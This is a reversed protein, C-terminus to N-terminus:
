NVGTLIEMSTKNPSRYYNIEDVDVVDDKISLTDGPNLYVNPEPFNYIIKGDLEKKSIVDYLTIFKHTFTKQKHGTLTISKKDIGKNIRIDELNAEIILGRQSFIGDNQKYALEIQLTGNSRDVIDSAYSMDPILVRLFTPKGSRISAQFSEIPIEIDPSGTLTFLYCLTGSQSQILDLKFDTDVGTLSFSGNEILIRNFRADSGTLVYVGVNAAIIKSVDSGTLTYHFTDVYLRPVEPFSLSYSEGEAIFGTHIKVALTADVGEISYAGSAPRHVAHFSAADGGLLYVGSVAVLKTPISFDVVSGVLSYVGPEPHIDATFGLTADTGTLSFSGSGAFVSETRYELAGFTLINDQHANGTYEGYISLPEADNDRLIIQGICGKYFLTKTPGNCAGILLSYTSSPEAGEPVWSGIDYSEVYVGDVFFYCDSLYNSFVTHMWAPTTAPFLNNEAHDENEVTSNIGDFKSIRWTALGHAADLNERMIRFGAHDVHNSDGLLCEQQHAVDPKDWAQISFYEDSFGTTFDTSSLEIADNTGDFHLCKGLIGDVLDGSTMSGQPTGHNHNSTSDIICNAGGSPDQQLHYVGKFGSDWVNEAVADGSLGVYETNDAHNGGYYIYLYISTDHLIQLDAKSAYLVAYERTSDWSVVEVYLQHIGDDYTVAIKKSSDGLEVFFDTLDKNSVGSTSNIFIPIPFHLGFRSDYQYHDYDDVTIKMRKKWSGLWGDERLNATQGSISYASIDMPFFLPFLLMHTPDIPISDSSVHRPMEGDFILTSNSVSAQYTTDTQVDDSIYFEIARVGKDTMWSFGPQWANHFHIHDFTIPGDDFNCIIRIETYPDDDYGVYWSNDTPQATLSTTTDFANGVSGQTSQNNAYYTMDAKLLNVLVGQKYFNIQRISTFDTSGWNTAIDIVVSKAEYFPTVRSLSAQSGILNYAGIEVDMKESVGNGIIDYAGGLAVIGFATMNLTFAGSEVSFKIKTSIDTGAISYSGPECNLSTLDAGTYFVQVSSWTGDEVTSIARAKWYYTSDPDLVDSTQVTFAIKEGSNFPTADGGNVTNVFASTPAEDSVQSILPPSFSEARSDTSAYFCAYLVGNDYDYDASRFLSGTRSYVLNEVFTGGSITYKYVAGSSACIWVDGNTQDISICRWTDSPASGTETWIASGDPKKWVKLDAVAWLDGTSEYVAIDEYDKSPADLDVISDLDPDYYYVDYNCAIWVIGTTSDWTMGQTDRYTPYLYETYSDDTPDYRWCSNGSYGAYWVEGNSEDVTIARSSESTPQTGPLAAWTETSATYKHVTYSGGSMGLYIDGTTHDFAIGWNYGTPAEMDVWGPPQEGIMIHYKLDAHWGDIGTFELTPTYDSEFDTEDATNLVTSPPVYYLAGHYRFECDSVDGFYTAFQGSSNALVPITDGTYEGGEAEHETWYRSASSAGGRAGTLEESGPSSHMCNVFVVCDALASNTTTAWTGDSTPTCINAYDLMAVNESFYGLRYHRCTSNPNQMLSVKSTSGSTAYSTFSSVGGGEAEHLLRWRLATNGFTNSGIQGTAAEATNCNVFEYVRDPQSVDADEWATTTNSNHLVFEEAYDINSGYYGLLTFVSGSDETYYQISATSDAQIHMVASTSGGREPEHLNLYRSLSSGVERIGINNTIEDTKHECLVCVVADDPVGLSSLDITTWAGTTPSNTIVDFKETFDISPM